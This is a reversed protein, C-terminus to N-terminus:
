SGSDLLAELDRRVTDGHREDFGRYVHRVVGARDVLYASPMGPIAWARPCAGDPSAALRFTAPHRRLFRRADATNEDVNVALLVLGRAGYEHQLANMFPFSRVCPKCWSAWFDVYMVQGRFGDLGVPDSGRAEDATGDQAAPGTSALPLLTCAPMAAGPKVAAAPLAPLLLCFLALRFTLHMTIQAPVARCASPLGGPVGPPFVHTEPAAVARSPWASWRWVM